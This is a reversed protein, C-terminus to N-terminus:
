PSKTVRGRLPRKPWHWKKPMKFPRRPMGSMFSAPKKKEAKLYDQLEERFTKLIAPMGPKTVGPYRWVSIIIRKSGKDQVMAWLEQKWKMEGKEDRTETVPQMMAFTKPAIGIETRRPMHLIRRVRAESLKYQRMKVRSHATWLLTM